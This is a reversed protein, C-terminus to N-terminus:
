FNPDKIAEILKLVKRDFYNHRDILAVVKFDPMKLLEDARLKVYTIGQVIDEPTKSNIDPCFPVGNLDVISLGVRYAQMQIFYSDDNRARKNDIDYQIQKLIDRPENAYLTRFTVAFKKNFFTYTEQYCKDALFAKFFNEKDKETITVEPFTDVKSTQTENNITNTDINTDNM